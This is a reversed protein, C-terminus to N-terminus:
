LFISLCIINNSNDAALSTLDQDGTNTGSNTGTIDSTLAITGAKNPFAIARNATPSHSLTTTYTGNNLKFTSGSQIHGSITYIHGASGETWIVGTEGSIKIDGDSQFTRGNISGDYGISGVSGEDASVFEM